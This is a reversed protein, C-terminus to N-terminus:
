VGKNQEVDANSVRSSSKLWEDIQSKLFLLRKSRKAFPIRGSSVMGYITQKAPKEPLYEILEDITFWKNPEPALQSKLKALVKLSTREAIEDALKEPSIPSLVLNHM